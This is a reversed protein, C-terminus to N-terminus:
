GWFRVTIHLRTNLVVGLGHGSADTEVVFPLSFNPTALIPANVLASKLTDFARTAAKTWGFNDKRLQDTLPQAVLAYGQIFKQYYGTLGLFGRLAKICTPPPWDVMAQVKSRDVEVRAASIVHGLYAVSDRASEKAEAFVISCRTGSQRCERAHCALAEEYASEQAESAGRLVRKTSFLCEGTGQQGVYCKKHQIVRFTASLQALSLWARGRTGLVEVLRLTTSGRM